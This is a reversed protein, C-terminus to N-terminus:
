RASRPLPRIPTQPLAVTAAIRAADQAFHRQLLVDVAGFEDLKADEASANADEDGGAAGDHADDEAPPDPIAWGYRASMLMLQELILDHRDRASLVKAKTDPRAADDESQRAENVAQLFHREYEAKAEHLRDALAEFHQRAATNPDDDGPAAVVVRSLAAVSVLSIAIMRHLTM